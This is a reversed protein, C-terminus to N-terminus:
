LIFNDVWDLIADRENAPEGRGGYEIRTNDAVDVEFWQRNLVDDRMIVEFENLDLVRGRGDVTDRASTASWSLLFPDGDAMIRDKETRPHFDFVDVQKGYHSGEMQFIDRGTGGRMGGNDHARLIDNGSGGSLIVRETYTPDYSMVDDGGYGYMRVLTVGPEGPETVHFGPNRLHMVDAGNTGTPDDTLIV